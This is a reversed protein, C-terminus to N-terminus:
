EAKINAIRVAREFMKQNKEIHKAYDESSMWKISRTGEVSLKKRIEPDELGQKLASSLKELIPKPLGPPALLGLQSEVGYGPILESLSPIDAIAPLRDHATVALLNADGQKVFPWVTQLAAILVPMDGSLFVPLAEGGGRFPVHNLKIGVGDQFLEMAIHHISGTGATGYSIEGPRAKAERILDQISKIRTSKANSVIVLGASETMLGIPTLDKLTNYPLNKFLYPAIELQATEGQLLTYGDPASKAVFNTAITGSAGAKNEVVFPQGLLESLKPAIVRAGFDPGTPGPVYGVEIKVPRDPYIQAVSVTSTLAVISCILSRKFMSLM